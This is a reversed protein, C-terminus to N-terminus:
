KFNRRAKKKPKVEGLKERIKIIEDRLIAATEFDLEAVADNMADEKIRILERPNDAFLAEDIAM